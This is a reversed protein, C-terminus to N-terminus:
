AASRSLIRSKRERSEDNAAIEVGAVRSEAQKACRLWREAMRSWVAKDDLNRTARAMRACEDAHKRFEVTLNM